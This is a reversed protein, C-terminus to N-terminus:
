SGSSAGTIENWHKGAKLAAFQEDTMYDPHKRSLPKPAVVETKACVGTTCGFLVRPTFPSAPVSWAIPEM